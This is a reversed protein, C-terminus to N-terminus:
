REASSKESLKSKIAEIEEVSLGAYEQIQNVSYGDRLMMAAARTAAKQEGAKFGEKYGARYVLRDHEEQSFETELGTLKSEKRKKTSASVRGDPEDDVIEFPFGHCRIAQRFFLEIATSMDLGLKRFLETAEEKLEADIQLTVTEKM